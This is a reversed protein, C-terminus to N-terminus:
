KRIVRGAKLRRTPRISGGAPEPPIGVHADSAPIASRARFAPPRGRTTWSPFPRRRKIARIDKDVPDGRFKPLVPIDLEDTHVSTRHHPIGDLVHHCAPPRPPLRM